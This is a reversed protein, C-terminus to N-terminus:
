NTCFAKAYNTIEASFQRPFDGSSINLIKPLRAREIIYRPSTHKQVDFKVKSNLFSKFVSSLNRNLIHKM